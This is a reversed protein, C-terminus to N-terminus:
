KDDFGEELIIQAYFKDGDRLVCTMLKVANKLTFDNPLKDDADMLIKIDSLLKLLRKTGIEKFKDLVKDLTYYDFILNNKDTMSKLLEQYNM